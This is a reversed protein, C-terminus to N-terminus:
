IPDDPGSGELSQIGEAIVKALLRKPGSSLSNASEADAQKVVAESASKQNGQM